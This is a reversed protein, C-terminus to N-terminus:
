AVVAGGSHVQRHCNEHLLVLNDMTDGGGHVRWLLHHHHWDSETTLPQGCVLCKGQQALWLLRTMRQGTWTTRMQRMRREEFYVEWAPDYPNAAGQIKVHRIIRTRAVEHLHVTHTGGEKSPLDGTFVWDRSGVRPFYKAKVWPASKQRHRRRAWRWLWRFLRRDVQTFTRKSAAHRHYLAWGWLIPNLREILQGATLCGGEDWIVKRVKLLLARVNRRSPKLIVKGDRYRRVRQGLFDFGNTVRTISTKEHSLELGREALFHAVLPQVEDRLLAKSTGTIIFDDAYRVLHVKNRHQQAQTAAFRMALLRELGDLTRNALAPSAIGGQPTGETTAYWRKKELFGAQLWQRLIVKNMPVHRQLWPHAIRDFCARIDGELVYGASHPHGLVIHVQELADACCRARRFGYSNADATTELIPDLGLLYLAQMARDTLTPIGLPRLKTPDSSKPIYVRRLPQAHYGHQRLPQLAAIKLEPTDWVIGDVGPTQAGQNTTVREVAVARGSFSHTLLYVLAQVKGWRGEQTAKVIRAQLRRVNRWVKRWPISHWSPALGPAAGALQSAAASM